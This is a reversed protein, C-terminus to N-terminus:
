ALLQQIGSRWHSLLTSLNNKSPYIMHPTSTSSHHLCFFDSSISIHAYLFVLHMQSPSRKNYCRSDVNYIITLTFVLLRLPTDKPQTSFYSHPCSHPFKSLYFKYGMRACSDIKKLPKLHAQYINSM